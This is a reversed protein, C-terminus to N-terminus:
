VLESAARGAGVAERGEEAAVGREAVAAVGARVGILLASGVAGAAALGAGVFLADHLGSVYSAGSGHGIAAASPVLAGFIAVGLAVGANRFTDNVGAALGGHREPLSSLAVASVAPNFLGTGFSALMEGPLVLAWSSHPGIITTLALGGAVLTLGAVIM